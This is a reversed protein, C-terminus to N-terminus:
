PLPHQLHELGFGCDPILLPDLLSSEVARSEAALDLDAIQHEVVPAPRDEIVDRHRDLCTPRDREDAGRPRSPNGKEM